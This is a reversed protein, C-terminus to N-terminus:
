LGVCCHQCCHVFDISSATFALSSDFGSLDREGERERERESETKREREKERARERESERERERERESTDVRLSSEQL